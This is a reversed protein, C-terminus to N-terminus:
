EYTIRTAHTADGILIRHGSWEAGSPEGLVFQERLSRSQALPRPPRCGGDRRRRRHTQVSRPLVSIAAENVLADSKFVCVKQAATQGEMEAQGTRGRGRGRM